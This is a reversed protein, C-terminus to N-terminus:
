RAPASRWTMLYILSLGALDLRQVQLEQTLTGLATDLVDPSFVGSVEREGLDSRTLVVRGPRATSSSLSSEALAQRDFILM